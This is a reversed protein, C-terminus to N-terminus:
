VISSLSGVLNVRFKGIRRAQLRCQVSNESIRGKHALPFSRRELEDPSRSEEFVISRVRKLYALHTGWRLVAHVTPEPVQQVPIDIIRHELHDESWQIDLAEGRDLVFGFV